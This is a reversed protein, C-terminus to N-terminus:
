KYNRLNRTDEDFVEALFGLAAQKTTADDMGQMRFDGEVEVRTKPGMPTYRHSYKTGKSVGGLSEMDFGTPPNFTFRWTEKRTSKGDPNRFEMEQVVANGQEQVTKTSLISRHNHVGPKDDQLFKWIKDIPADYVGDDRVKVM